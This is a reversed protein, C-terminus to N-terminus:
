LVTMGDQLVHHGCALIASENQNLFPFYYIHVPNRNLTKGDLSKIKLAFDLIEQDSKVNEFVGTNTKM